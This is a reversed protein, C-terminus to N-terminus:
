DVYLSDLEPDFSTGAAAHILMELQDILEDALDEDGYQKCTDAIYLYVRSATDFESSGLSGWDLYFSCTEYLQGAMKEALAHGKDFAGLFYYNEILQAVMYDNGAFGLPISELPFNEEPFDEQCLDMVELAKEDEGADILANAVTLFYQRQSLVGMFTYYNQYDVFWDKRSLAEWKFDEKLQRYLELADVNGADTSSIKNRIPTFRYSFGDYMLYDKIGVNLDGGMNLVNLPRDWEYNSLLDLMFLEPKSIYNKDKSMSLMIEDPIEDAFKEPVIGYKLCNEKNVPIVVNRACIFDLKEGNDLSVQMKPDKFIDM